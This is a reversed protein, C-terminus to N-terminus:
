DFIGKVSLSQTPGLYGEDVEGRSENDHLGVGREGETAEEEGEDEDYLKRKEVVKTTHYRDDNWFIEDNDNGNGIDNDNNDGEPVFLPEDNVNEEGAEKNMDKEGDRDKVSRSLMRRKNSFEDTRTKSNRAGIDHTPTIEKLATLRQDVNAAQLLLKSSEGDSIATLTISCSEKLTDSHDSFYRREFIVPYGPNSFMIDCISDDEKNISEVYKHSSRESKQDNAINLAGSIIQIFTKFNKLRISVESPDNSEKINHYILQDLKMKINLTMPRNILSEVRNALHNRNYGKLMLVGTQPIVSIQFDELVTPFIQLFRNLINVQIAIRNVREDDDFSDELGEDQKKQNELTKLYIYQIRSDLINLGPRYRISYKKKMGTETDFEVFLKNSYAIHNVKQDDGVLLFIKWRKADEGCDKFLINMDKSNVILTYCRALNQIDDDLFEDLEGDIEFKSFFCKKFSITFITTKTKNMASFVLESYNNNDKDVVEDDEENDSDSKVRQRIVIKFSDSINYLASITRTWLSKASKNQLEFEARFPM